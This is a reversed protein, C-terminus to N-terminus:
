EEHPGKTTPLIPAPSALMDKLAHEVDSQQGLERAIERYSSIVYHLAPNDPPGVQLLAHVAERLETAVRM